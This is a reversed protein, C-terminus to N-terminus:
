MGLTAAPEEEPPEGGRQAEMVEKLRPCPEGLRYWRSVTRALKADADLWLVPSTTMVRGDPIRPHGLSVGSLYPLPERDSAHVDWNEIFVAEALESEGPRWGSSLKAADDMAARLSAIRDTNPMDTDRRLPM